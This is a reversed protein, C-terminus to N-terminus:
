SEVRSSRSSSPSSPPSSSRSISPSGSAVAGRSTDLVPRHTAVFAQGLALGGDNPPVLHHTLPVFGDARLRDACMTTMLANQFVGGSLAVRPDAGRRARERRAVALVLAAVSCHFDIAIASRPRGARLDAVIARVVPRQDLTSGDITFEYRGPEGPEGGEALVELEIAAQAEYSIAQRLGLLSAVADFLRGMSTTPVCSVRRTLQRRLLQREADPMARVPALDESWEVGAADLHSLAVRCPHRVAADGGPLVVPALHAVREYGAADAVLVEGGWITGDDGYGTGDFAFGLVPEAPDCEHEAMVAAIHAHHHQVEVLRGGHNTRAWRSTLYGPHADVAVVVPEIAYMTTFDRVSHEFAELTSFNEMDGIHQSLWAHSPSALCFTNKLEGGVALVARRGGSVPVPLPAFGRGRRIPLLTDGVSRVVSDDCPVRIPRDHTLFADCMPGLRRRADDDDFALPEGSMNGSTMVLPRDVGRAVLHHLPTSPLMTGILPNGPAVLSSIASAPRARLLVIPRAPSHLQAAEADSVEAIARAAAVDGAMVAFPKDPRHKRARLLEVARDSTADCALHFGGVGKVAVTSDTCLLSVAVALPDNGEPMRATPPSPELRLTPGCDHCAIPQAHYRRDSPDSYEAACVACMEFGAMTTAPRDYPLHRIITFRPGCNTCTIFPHGFRRNRPDVLEAACEDCMATDPPILTREGSAVDSEVIRFGPSPRVGLPFRRISEVHSLPPAEVVLRAVFEDIGAGAVEIVVKTSDNRVCGDLGQESAIRYVFPRFGVGQVVGSVEIRELESMGVGRDDSGRVPGPEVAGGYPLADM